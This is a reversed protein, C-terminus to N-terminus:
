GGRVARVREVHRELDTMATLDPVIPVIDEFTAGIMSLRADGQNILESIKSLHGNAGSHEQVNPSVVVVKLALNTEIAALIPEAIHNDNFGFGVVLLGTDRKRIASQFSSIMELYPQAFALEYKTNRPYILLPRDASPVRNIKSADEDFEWDISGHIKYLQFLNEIYDPADSESGRRVIDYSFHMPDFTSPQSLTFGDMVVFGARQGAHEFCRDYNTTFLRLRERRVSRRALRRLFSEHLPLQENSDLFDVKGRIIREADAIFRSIKEQEEGAEFSEAIKARSLLEEIDTNGEPHRAIQLVENWTPYGERAEAYAQQVAQWLVGMTPAKVNGGDDKVCLSTGLGTLVILNKSRVIDSLVRDIEQRAPDPRDRGDAAEGEFEEAPEAEEELWEQNTMYTKIRM